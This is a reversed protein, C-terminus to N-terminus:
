TSASKNAELSQVNKADHIGKKLPLKPRSDEVNPSFREKSAIIDRLRSLIRPASKMRSLASLLKM